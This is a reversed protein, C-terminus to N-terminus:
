LHKLYSKNKFASWANWKSAKYIQYAVDINTECNFIDKGTYKASHISNIQFLGRDISKNSNTNTANCRM